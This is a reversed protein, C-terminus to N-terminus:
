FNIKKIKINRVKNNKLKIKKYNNGEYYFEPKTANYLM